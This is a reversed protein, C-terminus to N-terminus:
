EGTLHIVFTFQGDEDTIAEYLDPRQGSLGDKRVLHGSACSVLRHPKLRDVRVEVYTIEFSREKLHLTESPSSGHMRTDFLEILYLAGEGDSLSIRPM